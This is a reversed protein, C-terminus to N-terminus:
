STESRRSKLAEVGAGLRGSGGGLRRSGGQFAHTPDGLPDALYTGPPGGSRGAALAQATGSRLRRVQGRVEPVAAAGRARGASRVSPTVRMWATGVNISGNM